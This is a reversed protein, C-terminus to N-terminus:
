EILGVNAIEPLLEVGFPERSPQILLFQKRTLPPFCFYLLSYVPSSGDNNAQGVACDIFLTEQMALYSPHELFCGLLWVVCNEYDGRTKLLTGHRNAQLFEM